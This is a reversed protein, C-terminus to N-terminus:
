ITQHPITAPFAGPVFIDVRALSDVFSYQIPTNSAHLGRNAAHPLLVRKRALLLKTSKLRDPDVTKNSSVFSAARGPAARHTRDASDQSIAWEPDTASRKSLFRTPADTSVFDTAHSMATPM